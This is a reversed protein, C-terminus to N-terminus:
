YSGRYISLMVLFKSFVSLCPNISAQEELHALKLM